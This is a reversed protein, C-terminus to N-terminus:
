GYACRTKFTGNSFSHLFKLDSEKFTRPIREVIFFFARNVQSLSRFYSIM